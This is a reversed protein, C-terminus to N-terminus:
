IKIETEVNHLQQMLKLNKRSRSGYLRASMVTIIELVDLALEEEFKIEVPQNLITVKTGFQECLAFILESGFRLLRDKHTIVLEEVLNNTLMSILKVLGKKKYNLGSGLDKILEGEPYFSQLVQCQRELDEKQDHSSVRAYLITIRKPFSAPTFQEVPYRRHKGETVEYQLLGQKTWERVTEVRVGKLKAVEGITLLKKM